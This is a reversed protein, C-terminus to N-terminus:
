SRKTKNFKKWATAFAGAIATGDAIRKLSGTAAEVNHMAQQATDSAKNLKKMLKIFLITAAIALILFVALTISLIIVLIDFSEM